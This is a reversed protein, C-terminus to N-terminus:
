RRRVELAKDASFGAFVVLEALKERSPPAKASMDTQVNFGKRRCVTYGTCGNCNIASQL